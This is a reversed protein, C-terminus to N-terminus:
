RTKKIKDRTKKIKDGTWDITYDNDSDSDTTRIHMMSIGPIRQDLAQYFQAERAGGLHEVTTDNDEDTTQSFSTARTGENSGDINTTTRTDSRKNNHHPDMRGDLYLVVEDISEPYGKQTLLFDNNLEKIVHGYRNRDLLCLFLCAQFKNHEEAPTQLPELKTPGFEGWRATINKFLEKWKNAHTHINDTPQM